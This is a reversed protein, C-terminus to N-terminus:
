DKFTYPSKTKELKEFDFTTRKMLNDPGIYRHIEGKWFNIEEIPEGDKFRKYTDGYPTETKLIYDTENTPQKKRGEKFLPLKQKKCWKRIQKEEKIIKYPITGEIEM